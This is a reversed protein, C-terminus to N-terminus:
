SHLAHGNSWVVTKDNRCRQCCFIYKSKRHFNLSHFRKRYRSLTFPSVPFAQARVLCRPALPAKFSLWIPPSPPTSKTTDPLVELTPWEFCCSFQLKVLKSSSSKSPQYFTLSKQIETRRTTSNQLTIMSIFAILTVDAQLPVPMLALVLNWSVSQKYHLWDFM